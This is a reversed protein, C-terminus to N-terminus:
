DVQFLELRYFRQPPLRKVTNTITFAFSGSGIGNTWVPLWPTTLNTTSFVWVVGSYFENLGQLVLNTGLLITNTVM